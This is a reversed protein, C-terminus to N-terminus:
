YVRLDFAQGVAHPHTPAIGALQDFLEALALAPVRILGDAASADVVLEDDDRQVIVLEPRAFRGCLWALGHLEDRARAPDPGRLGNHRAYIRCNLHGALPALIHGYLHLHRRLEAFCRSVALATRALRGVSPSGIFALRRLEAATDILRVTTSDADRPM